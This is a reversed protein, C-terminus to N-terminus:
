LMHEISRGASSAMVLAIMAVTPDRCIPCQLLHRLHRGHKTVVLDVALYGIFPRVCEEAQWHLVRGWLIPDLLLFALNKREAVFDSLGPPADLHLLGVDNNLHNQLPLQLLLLSL